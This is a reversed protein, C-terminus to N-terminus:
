SHDRREPLRNYWDLFGSPSHHIAPIREEQLNGRMKKSMEGINGDDFLVMLLLLFKLRARLQVM